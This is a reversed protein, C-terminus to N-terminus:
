PKQPMKCPANTGGDLDKVWPLAARPAQGPQWFQGDVREESTTGDVDRSCLLLHPWSESGGELHLDLSVLKEQQVLPSWFLLFQTVCPERARARPRDPQPIAIIM